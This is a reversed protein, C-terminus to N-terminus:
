AASATWGSLVLGATSLGQAIPFYLNFSAPVPMERNSFDDEPSSENALLRTRIILRINSNMEM